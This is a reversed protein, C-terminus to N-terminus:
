LWIKVENLHSCRPCRVKHQGRKRPLRLTTECSQCKRYRHTQIEKVQRMPQKTKKQIRNMWKLFKRNEAQRALKNKSFFRYLTWVILATSVFNLLLSDMFLQLILLVLLLISSALYLQDVGNRAYMFGTFKWLLKKFM